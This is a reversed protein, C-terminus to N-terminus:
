EQREAAWPFLSVLHVLTGAGSSAEAIVRELLRGQHHSRWGQRVPWVELDAVM